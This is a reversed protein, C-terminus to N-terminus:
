PVLKTICFQEVSCTAGTTPMLVIEVSSVIPAETLTPPEAAPDLQCASTFASWPIEVGPTFTACYGYADMPNTLLVRTETCTPFNVVDITIGSGTLQYPAGSGFAVGFGCPNAEAFTPSTDGAPLPGVTGNFCFPPLANLNASCIPTTSGQPAPYLFAQTDCIENPCM